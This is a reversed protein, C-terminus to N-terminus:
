QNQLTLWGNIRNVDDEGLEGAAASLKLSAMSFDIRSRALEVEANALAQEANLVDVTHRTGAQLGKRTSVLVQLAANRADEYAQVKMFGKYYADYQKAIEVNLQKRAAEMQQRVREQNAVAQRVASNVQGGSYLPFNLQVGLSNTRYTNGITNNSDSSSYSKSAVLDITPLHQARAKNVEAQAAEFNSRLARLEPNNAEAQELWADMKKATDGAFAIKQQDLNALTDAVVPQGIVAALAKEMQEVTSLFEIEQASALMLRARAEDIDTRTGEGGQLSREANALQGSYAKKQMRIAKLREQALLVDFYAGSVRLVLNQGEKNLTAEASAVQAEAQGLQAIRDVRLLPQRLSLTRNRGVYEYERTVPGLMGQSDATTDNRSRSNSYGINPLLGARAQPIAERAAEAASQAALFNADNTQALRYAGLLDLSHALSIQGFGLLLSMLLLRPKRM